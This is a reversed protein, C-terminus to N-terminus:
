LSLSIESGGDEGIGVTMGAGFRPDACASLILCLALLVLRTMAGTIGWAVPATM